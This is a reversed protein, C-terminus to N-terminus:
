PLVSCRKLYFWSEHAIVHTDIIRNPVDALLNGHDLRPYTLNPETEVSCVHGDSTYVWNLTDLTQFHVDYIIPDIGDYHNCQISAQKVNQAVVISEFPQPEIYHIYYLQHDLTVYFVYIGDM